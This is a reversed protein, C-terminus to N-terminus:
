ITVFFLPAWFFVPIRSMELLIGYYYFCVCGTNHRDTVVGAAHAIVSVSHPGLSPAHRLRYVSQFLEFVFCSLQGLKRFRKKKKKNSNKPLVEAAAAAAAAAAARCESGLSERM